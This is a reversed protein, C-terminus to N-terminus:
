HLISEGSEIAWLVDSYGLAEANTRIEAIKEKLGCVVDRPQCSSVASMLCTRLYHYQRLLASSSSISATTRSSMENTATGLLSAVMADFDRAKQSVVHLVSTADDDDTPFSTDPRVHIDSAASTSSSTTTLPPPPTKLHRRETPAHRVARHSTGEACVTSRMVQDKPGVRDATAIADSSLVATDTESRRTTVAANGHASVSRAAVSPDDLVRLAATANRSANRLDDQASAFVDSRHLFHRDAGASGIAAKVYESSHAGVARQDYLTTWLQCAKVLQQGAMRLEHLRRSDAASHEVEAARQEDFMCLLKERERQMHYIREDVDDIAEQLRGLRAQRQSSEVAAGHQFMQVCHAYESADRLLDTPASVCAESLSKRPHNTHKGVLLSIASCPEHCLLCYFDAEDDAFSTSTLRKAAECIDHIDDLRNQQHVNPLLEVHPARATRSKANRAFSADGVGAASQM